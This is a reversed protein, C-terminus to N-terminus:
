RANGCTCPGATSETRRASCVTVLSNLAAASFGEDVNGPLRDPVVSIEM